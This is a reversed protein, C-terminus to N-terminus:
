SNPVERLYSVAAKYGTVNFGPVVIPKYNMNMQNTINVTGGILQGNFGSANNNAFNLTCQTYAFVNLNNFSTNNSFNFDYPTGPTCALGSQYPRIIHLTYTGGVANWNNQNVTTFSGDTALTDSAPSSIM